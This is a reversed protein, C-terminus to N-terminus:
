QLRNATEGVHAPKGLVQFDQTVDKPQYSQAFHFAPGGGRQGAEVIVAEHREGTEGRLLGDVALAFLNVDAPLTSGADEALERSRADSEAVFRQLTPRGTGTTLLFPILPRGGRVLETGHDLAFLILELLEPSPQHKANAM